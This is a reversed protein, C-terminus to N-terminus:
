VQHGSAAVIVRAPEEIGSFDREPFNQLALERYTPYGSLSILKRNGRKDPVSFMESTGPSRWASHRTSKSTAASYYERWHGIRRWEGSSRNGM